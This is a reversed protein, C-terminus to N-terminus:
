LAGRMAVQTRPLSRWTWSLTRQCQTIPGGAQPTFNHILRYSYTVGNIKDTPQWTIPDFNRLRVNFNWQTGTTNTSINRISFSYRHPNGVGLQNVLMGLVLSKLDIIQQNQATTNVWATNYNSLFGDRAFDMGSVGSYSKDKPEFFDNIVGFAEHVSEMGDIGFYQVFSTDFSYTLYPKNWRYFNKIDKPGGLDDTINFSIGNGSQQEAAMVPGIMVFGFVNSGGVFLAAVTLLAKLKTM